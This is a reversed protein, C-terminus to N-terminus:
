LEAAKLGDWETYTGKRNSGKDQAQPLTFCNPALLWFQPMEVRLVQSALHATMLWLDRSTTDSFIM